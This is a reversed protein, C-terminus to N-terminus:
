EGQTSIALADKGQGLFTRINSNNKLIGNEELLEENILM